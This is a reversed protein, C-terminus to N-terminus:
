AVVGTCELGELEDLDLDMASDPVEVGLAELTQKLKWLSEPTLTTYLWFTKGKAKGETGEFVWKLMENGSKSTEETVEVVKMGYDGEPIHFSGGGESSVGEMDVSIVRGKKVAARAM